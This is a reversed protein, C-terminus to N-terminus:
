RGFSSAAEEREEAHHKIQKGEALFVADEGILIGALNAALARRAPPPEGHVIAALAIAAELGALTQEGSKGAGPEDPRSRWFLGLAHRFTADDAAGLLGPAIGSTDSWARGSAPQAGMLRDQQEVHGPYRWAQVALVALAVSAVALALGAVVPLLRRM